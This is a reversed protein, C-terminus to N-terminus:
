RGGQLMTDIMKAISEGYGDGPVAWKGNLDELLPACGRKVLDFRPDVCAQVLPDTSAYAKLHQVQARIGTRVDKFSAANGPASNVAGLGCFNCQEAKVAGGFRLWGTEKMAQAFVVEARVGEAQAEQLVIACFDILQSAGCSSYVDSPYSNSGGSRWSGNGGTWLNEGHAHSPMEDVTLTHKKEGGVKGYSGYDADSVNYGVVFRGRLDPLRFYGSTTSLKRGNCDYANNYTTGIAKYLEPYESQKLQQGECLAYGDPIRSGAWIEVMGLPTRQIKALATQLAVIQAELEPLSQAEHFDTWKYSETGVGPALSREVYAQPYEYGQAQVSITTQKLYMGGSISGGEWYLVEGEPHEKTRLFVYGESRQTGGGTLACGLLIAKDGALNGIISVVHANTQMYDLMECDAPFDKNPQLLFRGQIQKM